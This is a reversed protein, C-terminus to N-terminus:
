NEGANRSYDTETIEIGVVMSKGTMEVTYDGANYIKIQSKKSTGYSDHECMGYGTSYAINGSSDYVLIEFCADPDPYSIEKEVWRNTNTDTYGKTRTIDKAEYTLDIYAVPTVGKLELSHKDYGAPFTLTNKYLCSGKDTEIPSITKSPDTIDSVYAVTDAPIPTPTASVYSVRNSNGYNSSYAKDQLTKLEDKVVYVGCVVMAIIGIITICAVLKNKKFINNYFNKSYAWLATGIGILVGIAFLIGIISVLIFIVVLVIVIFLFLYIFIDSGDSDDSM